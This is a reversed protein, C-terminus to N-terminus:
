VLNNDYPTLTVSFNVEVGRQQLTSLLDRIENNDEPYYCENWLQEEYKDTILQTLKNLTEQQEQTLDMSHSTHQSTNMSPDSELHTDNYCVGTLYLLALFFLPDNYSVVGM